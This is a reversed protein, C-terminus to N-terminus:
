KRIFATSLENKGNPKIFIRITVKHGDIIRIIDKKGPNGKYKEVIKKIKLYVKEKNKFVNMGHKEPDFIHNMKNKDKATRVVAKASNKVGSKIARDAVKGIVGAGLGGALDLIIDGSKAYQKWSDGTGGIAVELTTPFITLLTLLTLTSLVTLIRFCTISKNSLILGIAGDDHLGNLANSTTNQYNTANEFSYMLNNEVLGKFITLEEPKMIINKGTNPNYASYAIVKGNKDQM